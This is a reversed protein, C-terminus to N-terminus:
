SEACPSGRLLKDYLKLYGLRNTEMSFHRKVHTHASAGMRERLGHDLILARIGQVMAPITRSVVLGTEGPLHCESVGPADGVVSPLGAAMAELVANSLGESEAAHVFIDSRGLWSEVDDRTGLWNVRAAIGLKESRGQLRDREPGDGLVWLQIGDFERALNAVADLILDYGKRAQLRGVATLVIRGSDQGGSAPRIRVFRRDDIGNHLVRLRDPEVLGRMSNVVANSVGVVVAFPRYLRRFLWRIRRQPKTIRHFYAARLRRNFVLSPWVVMAAQFGHAICARCGSHRVFRAFRIQMLPLWLLLAALEMWPSERPKLPVRCLTDQGLQRLDSFLKQCERDRFLFLFHEQYDPTEMAFMRYLQNEGGHAGYTRMVHVVAKNQDTLM